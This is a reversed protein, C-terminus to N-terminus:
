KEKSVKANSGSVRSIDSKKMYRSLKTSPSPLPYPTHSHSNYRELSSLTPKAQMHYSAQRQHTAEHTLICQIFLEMWPQYPSPPVAQKQVYREKRQRRGEVGVPFVGLEKPVPLYRFDDQEWDLRLQPTLRLEAGVSTSAVRHLTHEPENEDSHSAEEGHDIVSEDTDGEPDVSQAIGNYEEEAGNPAVDSALAGDSSRISTNRPASDEKEKSSETTQAATTAMAPFPLPDHVDFYVIQDGPTFSVRKQVNPSHKEGSGKTAAPPATTRAAGDETGEESAKETVGQTLSSLLPETVSDGPNRTVSADRRHSHFSLSLCSGHLVEKATGELDASHVRRLRKHKERLNQVPRTASQLLHRFTNKKEKFPPKQPSNSADESLIDAAEPVDFPSYSLAKRKKSPLKLENKIRMRLQSLDDTSQSGAHNAAYFEKKPKAVNVDVLYARDGELDAQTQFPYAGSMSIGDDILGSKSVSIAAGNTNSLKGYRFDKSDRMRKAHLPSTQLQQIQKKISQITKKGASSLTVRHKIKYRNGDMDVEPLSLAIISPVPLGVLRSFEALTTEHSIAKDGSLSNPTQAKTLPASQVRRASRTQMVTSPSLTVSVLESRSQVEEQSADEQKVQTIFDQKSTNCPEYLSPPQLLQPQLSPARMPLPSSQLQPMRISLRSAMPTNSPSLSANSLNSVNSLNSLNSRGSTHVNRNLVIANSFSGVDAAADEKADPTSYPTSLRGGPELSTRPLRAPLSFTSLPTNNFNTVPPASMPTPALDATASSIPSFFAVDSTTATATTTVGVNSNTPVPTTLAVLSALADPRNTVIVNNTIIINPMAQSNLVVQVNPPNSNPDHLSPPSLKILPVPAPLSTSEDSPAAATATSTTQRDVTYGDSGGIQVHRTGDDHTIYVMPNHVWNRIPGQISHNQLRVRRLSVPENDDMPPPTRRTQHLHASRPHVKPMAPLLYSTAERTEQGPPQTIETRFALPMTNETRATGVQDRPATEPANDVPDTSITPINCAGELVPTIQIEPSTEKQDLTGVADTPFPLPTDFREPQLASDSAVANEEEPYGEVPERRVEAEEAEAVTKPEIDSENVPADPANALPPTCPSSAVEAVEELPAMQENQQPSELPDLEIRLPSPVDESWKSSDEEEMQSVSEPSGISLVALNGSTQSDMSGTPSDQAEVKETAKKKKVRRPLMVSTSDTGTVESLSVYKITAIFQAYPSPGTADGGLSSALGHTSVGRHKESLGGRTIDNAGDGDKAVGNGKIVDADTNKTEEDATAVASIGDLVRSLEPFGKFLAKKRKKIGKGMLEGNTEVELRREIGPVGIGSASAAEPISKSTNIKRGLSIYEEVTIPISQRVFFGDTYAERLASKPTKTPLEQTQAHGSSSPNSAPANSVPVAWQSNCPIPAKWTTGSDVKPKPASSTLAGEMAKHSSLNVVTTNASKVFRKWQKKLFYFRSDKGLKKRTSLQSSLSTRSKSTTGQESLSSTTTPKTPINSRIASNPPKSTAATPQLSSTQQSVSLNDKTSAPNKWRSLSTSVKSERSKPFPLSGEPANNHSESLNLPRVLQGQIEPTYLESPSAPPNYTIRPEATDEFFNEDM